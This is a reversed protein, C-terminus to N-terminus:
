EHNKYITGHKVFHESFSNIMKTKLEKLTPAFIKKKKDFQECVCVWKNNTSKVVSMLHPAWFENDDNVFTPTYVNLYIHELKIKM